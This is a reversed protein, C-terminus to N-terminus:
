KSLINKLKSQLNFERSLYEQSNNVLNNRVHSNSLLYKIGKLFDTPTDSILLHENNMLGTGESGVSTTVVALGKQLAEVTKLKIGAGHQMPNVFISCQSYIDELSEPSEYIYINDKYNLKNIQNTLWKISGNRTNGAIYFRYGPYEASISDHINILYWRVAEINNTMFLSGVFLVNRNVSVKPKSYINDVHPPIFLGKFEKNKSQFNELEDKSIFWITKLRSVYKKYLTKFKLSETYFYIKKLLSNESKMLQKFYKIENNHMRFIIEGNIGPNDLVPLIYDGELIVFDYDGSIPVDKLSIRSTYQLPYWSFFKKLTIKRKIIQVNNLLNEVYKIYEEEPHENVTSILDIKNGENNLAMIKDWVDKRGGHNPPYPFDSSVVLIKSLQIM